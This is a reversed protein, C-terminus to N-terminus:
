TGDRSMCLLANEDHRSARPLMGGRRPLTDRAYRCLTRPAAHLEYRIARARPQARASRTAYRKAVSAGGREVGAAADVLM